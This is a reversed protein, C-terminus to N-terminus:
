LSKILQIILVHGIYQGIGTGIGDPSQAEIGEDLAVVVFARM